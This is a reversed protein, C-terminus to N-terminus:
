SRPDFEARWIQQKGLSFGRWMAAFSIGTQPHKLDPAIDALPRLVFAYQQIDPHPLKVLDDHRVSDGHLLLDLDLTRASFRPDGRSRGFRSEIGALTQKVREISEATDFSAVLNFFDQGAFGVARSEYVASLTLAGYEAALERVAGRINNERDINSGIGVFVRPM